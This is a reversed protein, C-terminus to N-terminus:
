EKQKKYCRVSHRVTMTERGPLCEAEIVFVQAFLANSTTSLGHCYFLSKKDVKAIQLLKYYWLSEM